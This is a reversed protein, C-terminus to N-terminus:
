VLYMLENDNLFDEIHYYPRHLLYSKLKKKLENKPLNRFPGPLKNYIQIVSWHVNKQIYTFKPKNLTKLDTKNRTDYEHERKSNAFLCKNEVVFLVSEYVYLSIITLIQYKVFIPKCSDTQKMKFMSRLCKKQLILIRDVAVSNAWFIIGYRLKSQIYAHYACMAAEHGIEESITRLAFCYKSMNNALLDIHSRWDLRSNINVGLFSVSDISHLNTDKVMVSFPEPSRNKFNIIQTKAVNLLLDNSKFCCELSVLTDTVKEKLGQKNKESFVLTCDDAYLSMNVDVTNPFDNAYLIYFLPGLISGQPVGKRTVLTESKIQNGKTDNETICQKRNTLYSRILKLAVGRFGYFQLKECLVAHDVSDFAKSLDLCVAVTEKEENLSDLIHVLTQYIAHITSKGKRFGNQANSLIDHKELFSIFRSYMIKEIVKGINSLLSIPRYNSVEDKDGKKYVAKIHAIKLREPYIGTCFIRNIIHALPNCIIDAVEKLVCIPILDEGSSKKNKLSKICDLVEKPSTPAMFISHNNRKIYRHDYPINPKIDPCANVFYKNIDNLVTQPNDTKDKFNDIITNKSNKQKNQTIKNVLTWTAKVKNESKTIFEVNSIKKATKIVKKLINTYALYMEPSIEGKIKQKYMERKKQCSIRIGTTLWLNANSQKAKINKNVFILNMQSTLQSILSDYAENPNETNYIDEWKYSELEQRYHQLKVKSFIKKNITSKTKPANETVFSLLQAHHDSLASNIVESNKSSQFNIFVNDILSATKKTVRTPLFVTQSFNKTNLLDIFTKSDFNGKLLDINFDGCFIVKYKKFKKQVIELIEELKERFTRVAGLNTRYCCIVLLKLIVDKACALEIQGEVSKETICKEEEFSYGEKTYICAGGKESIERCYASVMKYGEIPLVEAEDKQLWHETFCLIHPKEELTEIFAELELTKNRLSQINQHLLHFKKNSSLIANNRTQFRTSSPIM